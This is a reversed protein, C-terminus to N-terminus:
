KDSNEILDKLESHAFNRLVNRITAGVAKSDGVIEDVEKIFSEKTIKKSSSSTKISKLDEQGIYKTLWPDEELHFPKANAFCEKYEEWCEFWAEQGSDTEQRKIRQCNCFARDNMMHYGQVGVQYALKKMKKNYSM